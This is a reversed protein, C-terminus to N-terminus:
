YKSAVREPTGSTGSEPEVSDTNNSASENLAKEREAKLKARRARQYDRAYGNVHAKRTANWKKQAKNRRARVDKTDEQLQETLDDIFQAENFTAKEIFGSVILYKHKESIWVLQFINLATGLMLMDEGTLNLLSNFLTRRATYRKTSVLKKSDMIARNIRHLQKLIYDQLVDNQKVYFALYKNLEEQTHFKIVKTNQM